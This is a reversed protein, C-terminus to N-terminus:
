QLDSLSLNFDAFREGWYPSRRMLEAITASRDISPADPLKKEIIGAFYHAMADNPAIVSTIHDLYRLFQRLKVPRSEDKLKLYNLHFNMYAWIDELSKKRAEQELACNNFVNKFDRDLMDRGAESIKAVKGYTGGSYRVNEYGTDELMGEAMMQEFIVTNPLPQLVQIQYWDLNMERSVNITDLIQGYKEHPFGIILYVRSFIEPHQRIVEAAKLLTKVSAPKRVQRLIEPNGSEMGITLGICGSESAAAVIDETCSAALVGNTCDWTIDVNQRIMENFLKLSEARDYLFDDDLWMVHRVDFDYRLRLLEDVVSQVSRRRVGVGNFNRVSCFTCQARCGRNSLVTAVVTEPERLFYYAGVKGWKSLERPDILDHAPIVDLSAGSPASRNAFRLLREGHRIDVQALETVDLRQNVIDVFERFATDCEYKFFMSVEPLDGYIRDSTKDIVISNTIHVGGCAIPLEAKYGRVERCVNQLMGHTQSFMCTVGVLDPEVRVLADRLDDTWAAHFDFDSESEAQRAAKLVSNHLNIIEVEYGATRLGSALVALGYSSYNTFRGRKCTAFNFLKEDVDPPTILLVTQVKRAPFIETLAEDAAGYIEPASAFQPNHFLVAPDFQIEEAQSM